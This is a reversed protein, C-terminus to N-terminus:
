SGSDGTEASSFTLASGEARFGAAQLVRKLEPGAQEVRIRPRNLADPELELTASIPGDAAQGALALHLAGDRCSLPGSLDPANRGALPLELRLMAQGEGEVCGAQSLDLSAREIEVVGPVPVAPLLAGIAGSLRLDSIHAQGLGPMLRGDAALERGDLRWRWGTGAFALRIDGLPRGQFTVGRLSGQWITGQVEAVRIGPPAALNLAAALPLRAIVFGALALLFVLVLTRLRM